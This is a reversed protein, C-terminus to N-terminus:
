ELDLQFDDKTIKIKIKKFKRKNPDLASDIVETAFYSNGMLEYYAKYGILIRQPKENHKESYAEILQVLKEYLSNIEM